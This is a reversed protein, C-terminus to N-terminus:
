KETELARLVLLVLMVMMVMITFAIAGTYSTEFQRFGQNYAYLSMTETRTGPGGETLAYVMDFIRMIDVFRILFVTLFVPWIVPLVVYWFSAWRSAGDIRAAEVLTQDVATLAAMLLLFVFPTHAWVETLVIAPYVFSPDLTWLITPQEGLVLGLLHNVPGFRNDFMFRWSVGAVIPSIVAPLIMLGVMLRKGPFDGVFLLAIAMGLAMQLPLAMLAILVTHWISQWFRMDAFLLRYNRLGAFSTDPDLMTINQLSVVLNYVVPVAGILLLLLLAPSLALIPMRRELFSSARGGSRATGRAADDAAAELRM